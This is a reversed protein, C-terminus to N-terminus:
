ATRIAAIAAVCNMGADCAERQVHGQFKRPVAPLGFDVVRLRGARARHQGTGDDPSVCPHQLAGCCATDACTAHFLRLAAATRWAGAARLLVRCLAIRQRRYPVPNGASEGTAARPYLSSVREAWLGYVDAGASLACFDFSDEDTGERFPRRTRRCPRVTRLVFRTGTM